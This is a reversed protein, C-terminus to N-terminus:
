CNYTEKVIMPKKLPPNGQLNFTEKVINEKAITPKMWLM